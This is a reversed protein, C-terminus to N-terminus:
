KGEVWGGRAKGSRATLVHSYSAKASSLPVLEPNQFNHIKKLMKIAIVLIINLKKNNNNTM